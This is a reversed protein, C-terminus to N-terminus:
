KLFGAVKDVVEKPIGLKEAGEELTGNAVMEKIKGMKEEDIGHEEALKGFVGDLFSM